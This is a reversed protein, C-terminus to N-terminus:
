LFLLLKNKMVLLTYIYQKNEKYIYVVSFKYCSSLSNDRSFAILQAM